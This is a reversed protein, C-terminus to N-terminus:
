RTRVGRSALAHRYPDGFWGPRGTGRSRHDKTGKIDGFYVIDSQHILIPHGEVTVEEEWAYLNYIEDGILSALESYTPDRGKYGYLMNYNEEAWEMWDDMTQGTVRLLIEPHEDMWSFEYIVDMCKFKRCILGRDVGIVYEGFESHGSIPESTFSITGDIEIYGDKNLNEIPDRSLVKYIVDRM